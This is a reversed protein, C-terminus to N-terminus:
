VLKILPHGQLFLYGNKFMKNSKLKMNNVNAWVSLNDAAEQMQSDQALKRCEIM